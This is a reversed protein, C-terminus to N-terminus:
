LNLDRILNKLNTKDSDIRFKEDVGEYSPIPDILKINNKPTVFINGEHIDGHGVGNDHLKSILQVVASLSEKRLDTEIKNLHKGDINEMFYGVITQGSTAVAIPKVIKDPALAHMKKLQNIEGILPDSGYIALVSRMSRSPHKYSDPDFMPIGFIDSYKLYTETHICKFFVKDISIGHAALSLVLPTLSLDIIPLSNVSSISPINTRSVLAKKNKFM